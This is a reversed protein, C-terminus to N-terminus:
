FIPESSNEHPYQRNPVGIDLYDCLQPWGDGATVNFILIQLGDRIMDALMNHRQYYYDIWQDPDNWFPNWDPKRKHHHAKCSTLWSSIDRTTFIFKSQPYTECLVRYDFRVETCADFKSIQELRSAYHLCDYGLLSLAYYLSTTGTRPPGVGLIKQKIIM